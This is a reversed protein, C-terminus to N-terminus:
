VSQIWFKVGPYTHLIMGCLFLSVLSESSKYEYDLISLLQDQFCVRQPQWLNGQALTSIVLMHYTHKVCKTVFVKSAPRQYLRKYTQDGARGSSKRYM